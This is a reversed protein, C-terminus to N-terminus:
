RRATPGATGPRTGPQSRAVRRDRMRVPRVPDTGSASHDGAMRGGEIRPQFRGALMPIVHQWAYWHQPFGHLPLVRIAPVLRPSACAPAGCQAFRQTVRPVPPFPRAGSGPPRIPSRVPVVGIVGPGRPDRRTRATLRDASSSRSRCTKPSHDRMRM